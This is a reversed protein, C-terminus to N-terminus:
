WIKIRAFGTPTSIDAGTIMVKRGFIPEKGKIKENYRQSPGGDYAHIIDYKTGKTIKYKSKGYKDSYIIAIHYNYLALDGKRILEIDQGKKAIRFYATGSYSVTAPNFNSTALNKISEDSGLPGKESCSDNYCLDPLSVSSVVTDANSISRLVLGVCDIGDWYKPNYNHENSQGSNSWNFYEESTGYLGAWKRPFTSSTVRTNLDYLKGDSDEVNGRYKLEGDTLNGNMQSAEHISNPPAKWKSVSGNFDKITQKGGFSYSMGGGHSGACQTGVVCDTPGYGNTLGDGRSYWKDTPFYDPAPPGVMDEPMIGAYQEAKAIMEKVFWKVVNEHLEYLGTDKESNDASTNPLVDAKDSDALEVLTAAIRETKGILIKQDVIKNEWNSSTDSLGYDKMLKNFTDSKTVGFNDRFLKVAGTTLPGYKGSHKNEGEPLLKYGTVSRKRTVVQNLLEQVLDFKREADTANEASKGVSQGDDAVFVADGKLVESFTVNSNSRVKFTVVAKHLKGAYIGTGTMGGNVTSPDIEFSVRVFGGDLLKSEAIKGASDTKAELNFSAIGDNNFTAKQSSV